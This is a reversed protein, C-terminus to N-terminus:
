QCGARCRTTGMMRVSLLALWYDEIDKDSDQICDLETQLESQISQLPDHVLAAPVELCEFEHGRRAFKGPQMHISRVPAFGKDDNERRGLARTRNCPLPYPPAHRAPLGM